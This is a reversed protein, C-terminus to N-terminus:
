GMVKKTLIAVLLGGMLYGLCVEIIVFFQGWGPNPSIDGYGLTTFTVLSFYISKFFTPPHCNTLQFIYYLFGFFIIFSICWILWRSLSRGYNCTIQLIKALIPSRAKLHFIRQQTIALDRVLAALTFNIRSLDVGNFSTNENFDINDILTRDMNSWDLIADELNTESLHTNTLNVNTLISKNFNAGYFDISSFDLNSLDLNSLKIGRLDYHDNLKGISNSISDRSFGNSKLNNIIEKGKETDWRAILDSKKINILTPYESENSTVNKNPEIFLKTM